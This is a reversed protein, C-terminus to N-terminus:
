CKRLVGVLVGLIRADETSNVIIPNMMKNSPELRVHNKERYFRKLTVEDNIMAVVREGDNASEKKQIVVFDGDEIHDEIMSQGHVQLVFNNSGGFLDKFELRDDQAVAQMPSGAAVRGLFPLGASEPHHDILQIARASFGERKILGKKELAKLHCMVGNPSKIDFALGIERVTPGYGRGEIKNKIFDYIERQRETLSSFDPM